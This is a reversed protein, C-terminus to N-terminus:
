SKGEGQMQGERMRLLRETQVAWYHMRRHMKQREQEPAAFDYGFRLGTLREVATVAAKQVVLDEDPKDLLDVLIHADPPQGIRGLAAAAEARVLPDADSVVIRRLTEIRTPSRHRGLQVAAERRVEPRQDSTAVGALVPGGRDGSMRGVARVAERATVVDEHRAAEAAKALAADDDRKALERLAEIRKAQDSSNVAESASESCGALVLCGLLCIGLAARAVSKIAM